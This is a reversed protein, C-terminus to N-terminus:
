TRAFAAIVRISGSGANTILQARIYRNVTGAVSAIYGAATTIPVVQTILDVWVSNDV